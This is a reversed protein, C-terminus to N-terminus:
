MPWILEWEIDYPELIELWPNAAVVADPLRDRPPDARDTDAGPSPSADKMM